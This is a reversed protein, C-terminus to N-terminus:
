QNQYALRSKFLRKERFYFSSVPLNKQLVSMVSFFMESSLNENIDVYTEFDISNRGKEKFVRQIFTNIEQSAQHRGTPNLFAGQNKGYLGEGKEESGSSLSNDSSM